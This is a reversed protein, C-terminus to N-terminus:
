TLDLYTGISSYMSKAYKKIVHMCMKQAQISLIKAIM